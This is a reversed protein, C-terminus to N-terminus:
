ERNLKYLKILKPYHEFLEPHDKWHKKICYRLTDSTKNLLSAAAQKQGYTQILAHEIASLEIITKEIELNKPAAQVQQSFYDDRTKSANQRIEDPLYSMYIKSKRIIRMKLLVSDITNKLERVNGPWDYSLLKDKTETDIIENVNQYGALKLFYCVIAEIDERRHRLPPIEVQFNKLRYYLDARFTGAEVLEKLDHNTAAIIQVDLQIDKEDGVVQITKTELFRLIKIQLNIEIDGIEDLFLIGGNAKRFYGEREYAAGTFAGKKHGFLSSELLTDQISSLNVPLFPKSKRSSQQYLYRAAVEKGVGTEGTILVTVEPNEALINLTKKIEEIAASRSVFPYQKAERSKFELNEQQLKRNEILLEFKKTWALVDFESKRLYDDAGRKMATVVTDTKQDATVVVLPIEPYKQKLHAIYDLGDLIQTDPKLNLDLLILDCGNRDLLPYAQEVSETAAFSFKRFGFRMKQAFASEDDILLLHSKMVHCGAFKAFRALLNSHLIERLPAFGCLSRLPLLERRRTM